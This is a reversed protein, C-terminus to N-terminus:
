CHKANCRKCDGNYKRCKRGYRDRHAYHVKATSLAYELRTNVPAIGKEADSKEMEKRQAETFHTKRWSDFAPYNVWGM